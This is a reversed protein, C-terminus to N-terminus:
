GWVCFSLCMTESKKKLICIFSILLHMVTSSPQSQLFISNTHTHTHTLFVAFFTWQAHRFLFALCMKCKLNNYFQKMCLSHSYTHDCVFCWDGLFCWNQILVTKGLARVWTPRGWLDITKLLQKFVSIFFSVSFSGFLGKTVSRVAQMRVFM